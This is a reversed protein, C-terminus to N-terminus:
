SCYLYIEKNRPLDKIAALLNNPEIRISGKIRFAGPDYYGHSRVDVVLLPLPSATAIYRALDQVKIRPVDLYKQRKWRYTRFGIYGILGCVVLVKLVLGVAQLSHVAASILDGFLFGLTGYAATYLCAALLDLRLFQRSGMRMSGALPAALAGLGPMFKAFILAAKGRRYFSEASRLICAEPNLTVRCLVGLLAWGMYRGLLYLLTDGLMAALVSVVLAIEPRLFHRASAAGAAILALTVPMPFGAAGLGVVLALAAYSHRALFSILDAM